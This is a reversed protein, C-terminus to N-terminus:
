NSHCRSCEANQQSRVAGELSVQNLKSKGRIKWAHKQCQKGCYAVKQCRQCTKFEGLAMEEKNCHGCTMLETGRRIEDGTEALSKELTTIIRMWVEERIANIESVTLAHGNPYNLCLRVCHPCQQQGIDSAMYKAEFICSARLLPISIAYKKLRANLILRIM